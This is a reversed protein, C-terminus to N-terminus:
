FHAVTLRFNWRYSGRSQSQYQNRHLCKEIILLRGLFFTKWISLPVRLRVCKRKEENPMIQSLIEDSFKRHIVVSLVRVCMVFVLCIFIEIREALHERRGSNLAWFIQTANVNHKKTWILNRDEISASRKPHPVNVQSTGLSHCVCYVTM